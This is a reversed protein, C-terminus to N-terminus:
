YTSLSLKWVTGQTEACGDIEIWVWWTCAAKSSTGGFVNYTM